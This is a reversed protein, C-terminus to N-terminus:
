KVFRVLVKAIAAAVLFSVIAEVVGNLGVFAVLFAGLSDMPLAGAMGDVFAANKWFFVVICGTFLITNLLATSLSAALFSVIKTKDIKAIARFLLGPLLGCLVRPVLCTIATLWPNISFVFVGFVSTGLVCTLLSTVGFVLGLIAGGIPGVVISGIAVPIIMLTIEIAGIKLYGLPTFSMILMIATLIALQAMKLTTKRSITNQM